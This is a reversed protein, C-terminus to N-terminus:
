DGSGTVVLDCRAASDDLADDPAPVSAARKRHRVIGTVGHRETLLQGIDDALLSFNPKTNDIFGVVKGALRQPMLRGTLGDSRFPATPDYVTLMAPM